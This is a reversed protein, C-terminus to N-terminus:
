PRGSITVQGFRGPATAPVPAGNATILPVMQQVAAGGPGFYVHVMPMQMPTDATGHPHYSGMAAAPGAAQAAIRRKLRSM